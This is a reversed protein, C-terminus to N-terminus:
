VMGREPLKRAFPEPGLSNKTVKERKGRLGVVRANATGEWLPLCCAPWVPALAPGDVLTTVLTASGAACCTAKGM